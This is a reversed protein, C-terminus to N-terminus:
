HRRHRPLLGPRRRRFGAAARETLAQRTLGPRLKEPDSLAWKILRRKTADRIHDLAIEHTESVTATWNTVIRFREMDCVILLPPNELGLAYLKLQALAADLDKRKGKYEWGFYGRKWVDSWGEGGSAKSAGREFCYWDGTPDADTPTPEELMQCLDIFHSQSAARETQTVGKWKAIFEDPTV